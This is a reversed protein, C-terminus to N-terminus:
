GASELVVVEIDIDHDPQLAERLIREVRDRVEDATGPQRHLSVELGVYAAM